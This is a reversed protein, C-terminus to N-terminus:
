KCISFIKPVHLILSISVKETLLQFVSPLVGPEFEIVQLRRRLTVLSPLPQGQELLTEYGVKGCTFKLQLAKQVTANSWHMGQTGKRNFLSTTNCSMMINRYECGYYCFVYRTLAELQDENFIKDIKNQIKERNHKEKKYLTELQLYYLKVIHITFKLTLFICLLFSLRGLNLLNYYNSCISLVMSCSVITLTLVGDCQYRSYIKNLNKFLLKLIPPKM